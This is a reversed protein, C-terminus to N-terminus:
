VEETKKCGEVRGGVRVTLCARWCGLVIPCRHCDVPRGGAVLLCGEAMQGAMKLGEVTKRCVGAMQCVMKDVEEMWGMAKM